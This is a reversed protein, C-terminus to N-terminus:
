RSMSAETAPRVYVLAEDFGVQLVRLVTYDEGQHKFRRGPEIRDIRLQRRTRSIIEYTVKGCDLCTFFQDKADTAGAYGRRVFETRTGGCNPCQREVTDPSQPSESM